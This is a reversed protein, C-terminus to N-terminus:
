EQQGKRGVTTIGSGIGAACCLQNSTRRNQKHQSKFQQLHSDTNNQLRQIL